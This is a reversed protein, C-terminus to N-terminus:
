REARRARSEGVSVPEQSSCDAAPRLEPPLHCEALVSDVLEATVTELRRSAGLLLCLSALRDIGRPNGGCRHHLRTVARPTFLGDRCGAAALKAVLYEEVEGRSLPKLRIALSWERFSPDADIADEETVLLLTVTGGTVAGLHLLRRVGQARTPASLARSDDIALVVQLNQIRCLQVAQLLARFAIAPDLPNVGRVGLGEALFGYLSAADLPDTALV